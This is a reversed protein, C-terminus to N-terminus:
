IEGSQIADSGAPVRYHDGFPLAEGEEDLRHVNVLTFGRDALRRLKDAGDSERVVYEIRMPRFVHFIAPAFREGEPKEAGRDIAERHAVLVYTEGLKFDRPVAPIRRSVGMTEAERSWDEPREYHGGGIWLLGARGLGPTGLVCDPECPQGTRCIQDGDIWTWARSPKIGAHCCPCVTLEIPLKACPQGLADTRLYIGGPQRYGCGRPREFVDVIAPFVADFHGNLEPAETTQMAENM